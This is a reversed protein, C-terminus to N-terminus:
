ARADAGLALALTASRKMASVILTPEIAQVRPVWPAEQLYRYLEVRSRFTADVLLQYDGALVSVYRVSRSELVAEAVEDLDPFPVKVWLLAEVPLGLLAPEFVARLYLTGARRMQEVKRSVTQISLGTARSLDEFSARGDLTLEKVLRVEERSLPGVPDGDTPAAIYRDGGLASVQEATLVDPQWQHMTRFYRLVPYTSANLVGPIGAIDRVVLDEFRSAPISVEAACDVAGTVVYSYLTEQQRALATAAVAATGPACTLKLVFQEAGRIRAPHPLGRIRVRRSALLESGRRAVTREPEGLVAAVRAWPARGDVQLAAVIRVSLDDLPAQESFM